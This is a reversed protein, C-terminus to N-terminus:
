MGNAKPTFMADTLGVNFKIDTLLFRGREIDNADYLDVGLVLRWERDLYVRGHPFEFRGTPTAEKLWYEFILVDRDGVKGVKQITIRTAEGGKAIKEEQIAKLTKIIQALGRRFGFQDVFRLTYQRAEPGRPEVEVTVPLGLVKATAKMKWSKQGPTEVYLSRYAGRPNVLTETLLSFPNDKFKCALKQEPLFDKAQPDLRELKYLTCTYDKVHQDYWKLGGQLYGVPDAAFKKAEAETEPQTTSLDNVVTLNGSIRAPGTECGALMTALCAVILLRKM